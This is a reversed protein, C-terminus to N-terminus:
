RRSAPARRAWSRSSSARSSTSRSAASRTSRPRARATAARSTRRRFSPARSHPRPYARRSRRGHPALSAIARRRPLRAVVVARVRAAAARGGLAALPRRAGDAITSSRRRRGDRGGGGLPLTLPLPHTFFLSLLMVAPTVLLAVQASSSIAIESALKMKGARAIVIAGGHEAANGVIAVIVAAIFFESAGVAHAFADLSHVLIESVIATLATALASRSSRARSRGPARPPTARARRARHQACTASRSRRSLARAARGRGSDVVVVAIHREPNGTYGLVIAPLSSCSASARVARAADLLSRRDIRAGNPGSSRRSASSSCCTRSSALRRALRARGAAPRQAGRLARHDARARQRLEREPLRRHRPRHARGRARDGRRDAVRAPHACACALVFM